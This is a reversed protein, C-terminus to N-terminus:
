ASGADAPAVLPVLQRVVEDLTIADADIITSV